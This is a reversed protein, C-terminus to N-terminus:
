AINESFILARRNTGLFFILYISVKPVGQLKFDDSLQRLAVFSHFIKSFASLILCSVDFWICLHDIINKPYLISSFIM